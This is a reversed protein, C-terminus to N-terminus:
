SGSHNEIIGDKLRIVRDTKAQYEAYTNPRPVNWFMPLTTEPPYTQAPMAYILGMVDGDCSSAILVSRDSSAQRGVLLTSCACAPQAQHCYTLVFLLLVTLQVLGRNDPTLNTVRAM